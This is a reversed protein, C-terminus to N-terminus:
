DELLWQRAKDMDQFLRMNQGANITVTEYFKNDNTFRAVLARKMEPLKIGQLAFQEAVMRPLNFIEVTTLAYKVQRSDNLARFCAKKRALVGVDLAIERMEEQTVTGEAKTEIIRMKANYRTQHAV